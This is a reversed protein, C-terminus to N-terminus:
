DNEGGVDLRGRSGRGGGEVEQRSRGVRWGGVEVASRCCPPLRADPSCRRPPSGRTRRRPPSYLANEGVEPSRRHGGPFLIRRRSSLIQGQVMRISAHLVLDLKKNMRGDSASTKQEDFGGSKGMRKAAGKIDYFCHSGSGLFPNTKANSQDPAKQIGQIELSM